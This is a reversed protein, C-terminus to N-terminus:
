LLGELIDRLSFAAAVGSSFLVTRLKLLIGPHTKERRTRPAKSMFIYRAIGRLSYAVRQKHSFGIEPLFDNSGTRIERAARRIDCVLVRCLNPHVFMYKAYLGGSGITYKRWLARGAEVTRRGHHHYVTM